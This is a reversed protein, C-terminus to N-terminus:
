GNNKRREKELIRIAYALIHYIARAMALIVARETLEPGVGELAELVTLMDQMDETLLEKSTDYYTMM